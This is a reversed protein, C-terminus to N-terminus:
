AERGFTGLLTHSLYPCHARSWRNRLTSRLVSPACGNMSHQEGLVEVQEISRNLPYGDEKEKEGGERASHAPRVDM